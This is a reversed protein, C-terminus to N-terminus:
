GKLEERSPKDFKGIAYKEVIARVIPKKCRKPKNVVKEMYHGSFPQSALIADMYLKSVGEELTRELPYDKPLDVIGSKTSLHIRKKMGYTCSLKNDTLSRLMGDALSELRSCLHECVSIPSIGNDRCMEYQEQLWLFLYASLEKTVAIAYEERAVKDLMEFPIPPTFTVKGMPKQKNATKTQKTMKKKM